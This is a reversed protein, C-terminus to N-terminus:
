SEELTRNGTSSVVLTQADKHYSSLVKSLNVAHSVVTLSPLGNLVVRIMAMNYIPFSPLFERRNFAAAAYIAPLMADVAFTDTRIEPIRVDLPLKYWLRSCALFDCPTSRRLQVAHQCGLSEGCLICMHGRKGISNKLFTHLDALDHYDKNPKTHILCSLQWVFATPTTTCFEMHSWWSTDTGSRWPLHQRWPVDQVGDLDADSDFHMCFYMYLMKDPADDMNLRLLLSNAERPIDMAGRQMETFAALSFSVEVEDESVREMVDFLGTPLNAMEEDLRSDNPVGLEQLLTITGSPDKAELARRLGDLRESEAITEEEINEWFIMAQNLAAHSLGNKNMNITLLNALLEIPRKVVITVTDDQLWGAVM